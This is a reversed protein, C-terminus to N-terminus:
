IRELSTPFNGRSLSAVELLRRTQHYRKVRPTDEM